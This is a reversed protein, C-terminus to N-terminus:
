GPLVDAGRQVWEIVLPIVEQAQGAASAAVLVLPAVSAALAVLISLATLSWAIPVSRTRVILALFVAALLGGGGEM